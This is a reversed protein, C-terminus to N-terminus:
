HIIQIKETQLSENKVDIFNLFYQGSPLDSVDWKEQAVTQFSFREERIKKGEINLLVLLLSVQGEAQLEMNLQDTAPNPFLQYTVTLNQVTTTGVEIDEKEPQQFGQTLIFDGQVVTAVSLEGVTTSFRGEPLTTYGGTTSIVQRELTVQANVLWPIILMTLLLITSKM